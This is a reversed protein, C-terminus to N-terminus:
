TTKREILTTEMKRNRHGEPGNSIVMNGGQSDAAYLVESQSVHLAERLHHKTVHGWYRHDDTSWVRLEVRKERSRCTESVTIVLKLPGSCLELGPISTKGNEPKKRTYHFACLQHRQHVHYLCRISISLDVRFCMLLTIYEEILLLSKFQITNVNCREEPSQLHTQLVTVLHLESTNSLRWGALLLSDAEAGLNTHEM